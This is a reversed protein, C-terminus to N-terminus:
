RQKVLELTEDVYLKPNGLNQRLLKRVAASTRVNKPLTDANVAYATLSTGDPSLTYKLYTFKQDPKDLDQVSVFPVGAFDSHYARFPDGNLLLLYTTGNLERIKLQEKGDKSRWDGLLKADINRTGSATIPVDYVCGALACVAAVALWRPLPRAAASFGRHRIEFM